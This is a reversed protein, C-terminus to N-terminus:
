DAKDFLLWLMAQSRSAFNKIPLSLSVAMGDIIPHINNEPNVVRAIKLEGLWGQKEMNIMLKAIEINSCSTNFQTVDLVVNKVQGKGAMKVVNKLMHEVDVVQSVDGRVECILLNNVPDVECNFLFKM